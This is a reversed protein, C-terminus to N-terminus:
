VTNDGCHNRPVPPGRLTFRTQSGQNRQNGLCWVSRGGPETFFPSLNEMRSNREELPRLSIDPREAALMTTHEWLQLLMTFTWGDDSEICYPDPNILPWIPTRIEELNPFQPRHKRLWMIFHLTHPAIGHLDDPELNNYLSYRVLSRPLNRMRNSLLHVGGLQSHQCNSIAGGLAYESFSTLHRLQALASNIPRDNHYDYVLDLSTLTDKAAKLLDSIWHPLFNWHCGPRVLIRMETINKVSFRLTALVSQISSRTQRPSSYTDVSLQLFQLSLFSPVVPILRSSPGDIDTPDWGQHTYDFDERTDYIQLHTLSSLHPHQLLKVSVSAMPIELFLLHRGKGVSLADLLEVVLESAATFGVPQSEPWGLSRLPVSDASDFSDQTFREDYSHNGYDSDESDTFLETDYCHRLRLHLVICKPAFDIWSTAWNQFPKEGTYVSETRYLLERAVHQWGQGVLAADLLFHRREPVSATENLIPCSYPGISDLGL